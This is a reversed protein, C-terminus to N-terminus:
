KMKSFPLSQMYISEVKTTLPGNVESDSKAKIWDPDKRFTDFSATGAEKSKHSLLYILKPIGDKDDFSNFYVDNEMGHKKFLAITHNRFRDNLAPLKSDSPTYIRLEYTGSAMKPKFNGPSFDTETMLVSELREIIKGNAESDKAVKQWAPDAIFSKWAAEKAAKSDFKVIYILVDDKGEPLWYGVNEMGYTEFFKLTHDQFRKILDARKGPFCYYTRLEYVPANQASLLVSAGLMLTIILHLKM